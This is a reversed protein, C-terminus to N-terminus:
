TYENEISDHLKDRLNFVLMTENTYGKCTRRFFDRYEKEFFDRFVADKAPLGSVAATHLIVIM